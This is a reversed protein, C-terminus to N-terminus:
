TEKIKEDFDYEESVTEIEFKHEIVSANRRALMTALIAFVTSGIVSFWGCTACLTEM